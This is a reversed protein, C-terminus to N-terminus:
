SQYANKNGVQNFIILFFHIKGGTVLGPLEAVPMLRTLLDEGSDPETPHTLRCNELLVAYCTNSLIAPNAFATSLLRPNEGTYGTEERLERVATELPSTDTKDMVGGPIELSFGDIGYRFQKVLVLHDDPTLAVVNVWDPAQMVVFDRETGRGPHRYRAGLVDFVRTKLKTDQGLKEWRAPGAKPTQM